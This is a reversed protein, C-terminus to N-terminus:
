TPKYVMLALIVLLVLLDIRQIRHVPRIAQVITSLDSGDQVAKSIRKGRPSFYAIGLTFTVVFLGIAIDIWLLGFEWKWLVMAIASAFLVITAVPYIRAGADAVRAYTTAYAEEGRRRAGAVLVESFMAGGLWVIASLIHLFVLLRYM